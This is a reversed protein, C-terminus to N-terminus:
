HHLRLISTETFAYHIVAGARAAAGAVCASGDGCRTVHPPARATRTTCDTTNCARRQPQQHLHRGDAVLALQHHQEQEGEAVDGRELLGDVGVVGLSALVRLFVCVWVSSM